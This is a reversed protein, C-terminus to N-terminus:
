PRDGAHVTLVPVPASRVVKEAISGLFLHEYGKRGHTGIVILDFRHEEVAEVVARWALGPVFISKVEPCKVRVREVERDLAQRAAEQLEDLPLTIRESYSPLPVTWVHLLTVRARSGAALECALDAARQAAPGYDTPVLINKFPSM